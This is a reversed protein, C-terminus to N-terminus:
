QKRENRQVTKGGKRSLRNSKSNVQWVESPLIGRGYHQRSKRCSEDWKGQQREDHCTSRGNLV